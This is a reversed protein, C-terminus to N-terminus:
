NEANIKGENFDNPNNGERHAYSIQRWFEDEQNWRREQRVSAYDHEQGINWLESLISQPITQVWKRLKESIKITEVKRECFIEKFCKYCYPDCNEACEPLKESM